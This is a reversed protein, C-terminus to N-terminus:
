RAHNDGNLDHQNFPFSGTPSAEALQVSDGHEAPRAGPTDKGAKSRMATVVIRGDRDQHAVQTAQPAPDTHAAAAAFLVIFLGAALVCANAASDINLHRNWDNKPATNM